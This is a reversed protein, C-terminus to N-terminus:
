QIVFCLQICEIKHGFEWGMPISHSQMSPPAQFVLMNPGFTRDQPRLQCYVPFYSNDTIHLLHPALNHFGLEPIQGM